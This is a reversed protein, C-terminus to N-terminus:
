YKAIVMKLRGYKNIRYNKFIITFFNFMITIYFNTTLLMTKQKIKYNDVQIVTGNM